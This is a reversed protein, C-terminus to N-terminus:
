PKSMDSRGDTIPPAHESNSTAPHNTEQHESMAYAIPTGCYARKAFILYYCVGEFDGTLPVINIVAQGTQMYARGFLFDEDLELEALLPPGFSSSKTVALVQQGWLGHRVDGTEIFTNNKNNWSYKNSFIFKDASFELKNTFNLTTGDAGFTMGSSYLNNPEQTTLLKNGWALLNAVGLIIM